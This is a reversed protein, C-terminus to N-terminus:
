TFRAGARAPEVAPSGPVHLPTSKGAPDAPAAAKVLTDPLSRTGPDAVPPSEHSWRRVVELVAASVQGAESGPSAAAKLVHRALRDSLGRELLAVQLAFGSETKSRRAQRLRRLHGVIRSRVPRALIRLIARRDPPGMGALTRLSAALADTRSDATM